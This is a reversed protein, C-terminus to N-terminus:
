TYLLEFRSHSALDRGLPDQIDVNRVKYKCVIDTDKKKKYKIGIDTDKRRNARM